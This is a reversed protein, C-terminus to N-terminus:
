FTNNTELYKLIKKNDEEKRGRGRLGFEGRRVRDGEENSSLSSTISKYSLENGNLSLVRSMKLTKM